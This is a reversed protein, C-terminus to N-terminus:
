FGRCGRNFYIRPWKCSSELASIVGCWGKRLFWLVMCFLARLRCEDKMKPSM